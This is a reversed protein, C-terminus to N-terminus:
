LYKCEYIKYLTISTAHFTLLQSLKQTCTDNPGNGTIQTYPLKSKLTHGYSIKHQQLTNIFIM